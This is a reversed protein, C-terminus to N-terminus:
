TNLSGQGILMMEIMFKITWAGIAVVFGVISGKIMNKAASIGEKDGSSSVYRIGGLILFIVALAVSLLFVLNVILNIIFGLGTFHPVPDEAFNTPIGGM